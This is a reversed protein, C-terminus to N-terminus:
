ARPRKTYALLCAGCLAILALSGLSASLTSKCGKSLRSSNSESTSDLPSNNEAHPQHTHPEEPAAQTTTDSSSEWGDPREMEQKPINISAPNAINGDALWHEPYLIDNLPISLLTWSLDMTVYDDLAAYIAYSQAVMMQMQQSKGKLEVLAFIGKTCYIKEMGLYFTKIKNCLTTYNDKYFSYKAIKKEFASDYSATRVKDYEMLLNKLTESASRVEDLLARNIGTLVEKGHLADLFSTATPGKLAYYYSWDIPRSDGDKSVRIYMSDMIELARDIADMDKLYSEYEDYDSARVDDRKPNHIGQIAGAPIQLLMLLGLALGAAAIWRRSREKIIM